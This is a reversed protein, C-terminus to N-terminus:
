SHYKSKWWRRPENDDGDEARKLAKLIEEIRWVSGPADEVERLSVRFPWCSEILILRPELELKGPAAVMADFTTELNLRERAAENELHYPIASVFVARIVRGDDDIGDINAYCQKGELPKKASVATYRVESLANMLDPVFGKNMQSVIHTHVAAASEVIDPHVPLGGGERVEAEWADYKQTGQGYPKNTSPNVPSDSVINMRELAPLGGNFLMTKILGGLVQRSTPPEALEKTVYVGYYIYPDQHLAYMKRSTFLGEPEEEEERLFCGSEYAAPKSATPKSTAKKPM